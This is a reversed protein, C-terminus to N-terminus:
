RPDDGCGIRRHQQEEVLQEVQEIAVAAQGLRHVGEQVVSRRLDPVVGPPADDAQRAALDFHGVPIQLPLVLDGLDDATALVQEDVVLRFDALHDAPPQELFM